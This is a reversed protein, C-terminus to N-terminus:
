KQSQALRAQAEVITYPARSPVDDHGNFRSLAITIYAALIRLISLHHESYMHAKYSQVTIVGIVQAEMMLPSFMLSKPQGAARPMPLRKIYAAYEKEFDGILIDQKHAVCWVAPRDDDTMAMKHEPLQVGMDVFIRYTIEQKEADYLGIGFADTDMLTQLHEYIVSVLTQMDCDAAIRRGIEALVQMERHAAQLQTATKKAESAQTELQMKLLANECALRAARRWYVWFAGVLLVLLGLTLFVQPAIPISGGQEAGFRPQAYADNWPLLAGYPFVSSVVWCNKM